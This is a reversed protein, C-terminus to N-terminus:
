TNATEIAHRIIAGRQRRLAPGDLQAASYGEGSVVRAIEGATAYRGSKALEFARELATKNPDMGRFIPAEPKPRYDLGGCFRM